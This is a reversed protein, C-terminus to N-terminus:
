KLQTYEIKVAQSIGAGDRRIDGFVAGDMRLNEFVQGDDITLMHQRGDINEELACKQSNLTNRSGARLLVQQNIKRKRRGMDVSVVGDLGAVSRDDCERSWSGVSLSVQELKIAEDLCAFM